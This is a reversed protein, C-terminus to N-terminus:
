IITAIRYKWVVDEPACPTWRNYQIGVMNYEVFYCYTILQYVGPDGTDKVSYGRKSNNTLPEFGCDPSPCKRVIQELEATNSVKVTLTVTALKGFYVGSISGFFSAVYSNLLFKGTVSREYSTYGRYTITDKAMPTISRTQLLDDDYEVISVSIISDTVALLSDGSVAQEMSTQIGRADDIAQNESRFDTGLALYDEEIDSSCSIASISLALALFCYVFKSM